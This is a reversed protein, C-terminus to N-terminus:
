ASVRLPRTETRIVLMNELSQPATASGPASFHGEQVRELTTREVVDDDEGTVSFTQLGIERLEETRRINFGLDDKASRGFELVQTKMASKLKVKFFDIQGWKLM